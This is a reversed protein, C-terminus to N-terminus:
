VYTKSADRISGICIPIMFADLEGAKTNVTIQANKAM